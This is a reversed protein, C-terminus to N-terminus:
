SRLEMQRPPEPELLEAVIRVGPACGRAVWWKRVPGDCVQCDDEWLHCSTLADLVAKEVNDRDPKATHRFAGDPYGPELYKKEREFYADITIMVPGPWPGQPLGAQRAALVVRDKWGSSSEPTYIHVYPAVRKGKRTRAITGRARPQAKPTGRVTFELRTTM